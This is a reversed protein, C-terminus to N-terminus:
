RYRFRDAGQRWCCQAEHDREIMSFYSGMLERWIRQSMQIAMRRDIAVTENLPVNGSFSSAAAAARKARLRSGTEAVQNSITLWGYVM